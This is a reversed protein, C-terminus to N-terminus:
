LILDQMITKIIVIVMKIPKKPMPRVITLYDNFVTSFHIAALFNLNM